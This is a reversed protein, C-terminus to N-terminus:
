RFKSHDDFLKLKGEKSVSVSSSGSSLSKNIIDESSQGGKRITLAYVGGLIVAVVIGIMWKKRTNPEVGNRIEQYNGSSGDYKQYSGNNSAM